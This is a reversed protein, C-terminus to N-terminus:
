KKLGERLEQLMKSYKGDKANLIEVAAIAANEARNLGVWLCKKTAEILKLADKAKSNELVPVSIIFFNEDIKQNLEVFMINIFDKKPEKELSCGVNLDNLVNKAKEDYKSNNIINIGKFGKVIMEAADVAGKANDVGVALVPVNPPMQIISFLSDLGGFNSSVPIGIVPKITHSAVVGPLAASLGAGAIIVKAKTESIIKKVKEPNRHASCVELQYDDLNKIVESYIKEDSKSGFIVLIEAM